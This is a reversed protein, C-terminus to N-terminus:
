LDVRSLGCLKTEPIHTLGLGLNM